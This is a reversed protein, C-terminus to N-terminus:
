ADSRAVRKECTWARGDHKAPVPQLYKQWPHTPATTRRECKICLYMPLGPNVASRAGDCLVSGAPLTM